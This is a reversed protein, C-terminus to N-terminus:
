AFTVCVASNTRDASQISASTFVPKWWFISNFQSTQFETTYWLSTRCSENADCDLSWRWSWTIVWAWNYPNSITWNILDIKFWYYYCCNTWNVWSWQSWSCCKVYILVSDKNNPNYFAKYLWWASYSDSVSWQISSWCVWWWASSKCVVFAWRCDYSPSYWCWTWVWIAHKVWNKEFEWSFELTAGQRWCQSYFTAWTAATIWSAYWWWSELTWTVWYLTCWKKINEPILTSCAVNTMTWTVWYLSCGKRINNATLDKDIANWIFSM